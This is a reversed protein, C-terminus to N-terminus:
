VHARGIQQDTNVDALEPLQSLANRVRPEWTRLDELDDAQLTFQYQANSQRGGIRIDQVPVLFLNAGPEHALKDRLRAVVQDASVGREALPKLTLFFNASNRQGGGTFGNVNVVAPDARLIEMFTELRQRMMQYSSGQDAQVGGFIQGTDQQPFFTKPIVRYLHVNFAVVALLSLLALAPRRLTWLDSSCM